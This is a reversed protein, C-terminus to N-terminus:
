KLDAAKLLSVIKKRKVFYGIKIYIYDYQAMGKM